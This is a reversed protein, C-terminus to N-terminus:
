HFIFSKLYLESDVSVFKPLHLLFSICPGGLPFLHYIQTALNNHSQRLQVINWANVAIDNRAGHLEERATLREMRETLNRLSAQLPDILREQLYGREREFRQDFHGVMPAILDHVHTCIGEFYPDFYGDLPM